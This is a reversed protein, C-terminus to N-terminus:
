IQQDLSRYTQGSGDAFEIWGADLLSKCDKRISAPDCGIARQLETESIGPRYRVIADITQAITGREFGKM